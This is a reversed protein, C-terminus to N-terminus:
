PAPRGNLDVGYLMSLMKRVRRAAQLEREWFEDPFAAWEPRLARFNQDHCLRRSSVRNGIVQLLVLLEHQLAAELDRRPITPAHPRPAPKVFGPPPPSAFLDAMRLGLAGVVAEPSCGAFCHVLLRDGADRVSLSPNRDDHAPCRATWRDPGTQHVANLRALLTSAGDYPVLTSHQDHPTTHDAAEPDGAEPDRRIHPGARAEGGDAFLRTM